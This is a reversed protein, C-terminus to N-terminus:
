AFALAWELIHCASSMWSEVDETTEVSRQFDLSKIAINQLLWQHLRELPPYSTSKMM